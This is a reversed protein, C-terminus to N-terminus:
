KKEFNFEIFHKSFTGQQLWEENRNWDIYRITFGEKIIEAAQVIVEDFDQTTCILTKGVVM